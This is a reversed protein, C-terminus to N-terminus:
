INDEEKTHAIKRFRTTVNFQRNEIDLKKIALYAEELMDLLDSKGIDDTMAVRQDYEKYFGKGWWRDDSIMDLQHKTEMVDVLKMNNDKLRKLVLIILERNIVWDPDGGNRVHRNVCFEISPDHPEPRLIRKKKLFRLVRYDSSINSKENSKLYNFGIMGSFDVLIDKSLPIVNVKKIYSVKNWKDYYNFWDCSPINAVIWDELKSDTWVGWQWWASNLWEIPTRVVFIVEVEHKDFCCGINEFNESESLWGENSMILTNCDKSMLDLSTTLNGKVINLDDFFNLSVSSVYNYINTKAINRQNEGHILTGDKAISVYKKRAGIDNHSFYEQISSSGCKGAGIHLYIKM